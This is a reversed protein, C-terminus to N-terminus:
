DVEEEATGWLRIAELLVDGSSKLPSSLPAQSPTSTPVNKGSEVAMPMAVEAGPQINIIKAGKRSVRIRRVSNAPCVQHLSQGLGNQMLSNWKEQLQCELLGPAEILLLLMDLATMPTPAPHLNLLSCAKPCKFLLQTLESLLLLFSDACDRTRTYSDRLYLPYMEILKDVVQLSICKNMEHNNHVSIGLRNNKYERVTLSQIDTYGSAVLGAHLGFTFARTVAAVKKKLHPPQTEILVRTTFPFNLSRVFDGGITAATLQPILSPTRAIPKRQHDNYMDIPCYPQSNFEIDGATNVIVYSLGLNAYGPDISIIPQNALHDTLFNRAEALDQRLAM